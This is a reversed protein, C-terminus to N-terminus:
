KKIALQVQQLSHLEFLTIIQPAFILLAVIIFCSLIATMGFFYNVERKTLFTYIRTVGNIMLSVSKLM